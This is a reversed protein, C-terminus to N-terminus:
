EFEKGSIQPLISNSYIFYKNKYLILMMNNFFSTPKYFVCHSTQTKQKTFIQKRKEFQDMFLIFHVFM